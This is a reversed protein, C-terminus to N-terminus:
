LAILFVPDNYFRSLRCSQNHYKAAWAYKSFVKFNPWYRDLNARIHRKHNLFTTARMSDRFTHLPHMYNIFTAGSDNWLIHTFMRDRKIDPHGDLYDLATRHLIVRPNRAQKETESLEGLIHGFVLNDSIHISGVGIGGRIFLGNEALELQFHGMNHCAMGLEFWGSREGLYRYGVLVNDSFTKMRWKAGSPDDLLQHAKDLRESLWTLEEQERGRMHAKRMREKYGLIDALVVVSQEM